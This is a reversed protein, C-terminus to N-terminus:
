QDSHVPKLAYAWQYTRKFFAFTQDYVLTALLIFAPLFQILYRSRGGEFLLLYMFGGIIMLRLVQVIKTQDRWGFAILVLWILWWIQAIFRFDGLHTGYLYVFQQLLGTFGTGTPRPDENIFHGEKVWAFTGDATNNRQKKFLFTVYGLAGKQKLRKILLQKSYANRGKKTPIVAMALADKPNYGGDGSLGMAIFHLPPVSRQTNVPLYTQQDLIHKEGLYSGGLVLTACLILGLARRWQQASYSQRLSYLLEVLGIAIVGVIASPKMFYTTAALFGFCVAALVRVPLKFRGHALVVYSLLYGSVLPLVWTDTYPVIIMPFIVLWCAHLYMGAALKKKNLVAISLINFSAALDVLFLNVFDFFLWSKTGFVTALFHQLLLILINNYYLSFYSRIDPSTTDTLAQHIAGVDFGIPPHVALVFTIQWLVVAALLLGATRLKQGIFVQYGWARVQPYTILAVIVAVAFIVLMTTWLTTGAGTIWNDGLIINPSTVAFLLTLFFLGNFLRTLTKNGLNFLTNTM